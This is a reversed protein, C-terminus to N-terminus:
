ADLLQRVQQPDHLLINSLQAPQYGSRSLDQLTAYFQEYTAAIAGATANRASARLRPSSLRDFEPMVLSFMSKYFSDLVERLADLTMGPQQALPQSPDARAILEMKDAMGSRRLIADAQERVLLDTWDGIEATLRQVWSVTFDYRTLSSQMAVLNNIIYVAADARDLGSASQRCAQMLPGIFANLVPAFRREREEATQAELAATSLAEDHVALIDSLRRILESVELAVSLDRPYAPPAALLKDCQAKVSMFFTEQAAAHLGGITEVALARPSALVNELTGQYFELLNTMKFVVLLTPESALVQRVRGGLPGAVGQFIVDLTAVNRELPTAEKKTENDEASKSGEVDSDGVKATEKSDELSTEGTVAKEMDQLTPPAEVSPHPNLPFLAFVLRKEVAMAQHVWALMDGVYRLPDHAHLEIPRAAGGAGGQTLAAAFRAAIAASRHEAICNRAQDYYAPAEVLTAIGRKLAESPDPFDPDLQGCQSQVWGFLQEYAQGQFVAMADFLELGASQFQSSILAQCETRIRQVDELASFFLAGGDTGQPGQRLALLQADTLKFRKLFNEMVKSREVADNRRSALDQTLEKFKSTEEACKDLRDVLDDCVLHIDEVSRSLVDISSQIPEFEAVFKEVLELGRTELDARLNRRAELTNEEPFFAALADLADLMAPTDTRMEQVKKLKKRFVSPPAM